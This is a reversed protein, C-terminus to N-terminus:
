RIRKAREPPSSARPESGRCTRARWPPPAFAAALWSAFSRLFSAPAATPPTTVHTPRVSLCLRTGTYEIWSACPCTSARELPRRSVAACMTARGRAHRPVRLWCLARAEWRAQASPRTHTGTRLPHASRMPRNQLPPTPLCWDSHPPFASALSLPMGSQQDPVTSRWRTACSRCTRWPYPTCARHRTPCQPACPTTLPAAGRARRGLRPSLRM